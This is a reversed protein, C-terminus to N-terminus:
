GLVRQDAAHGGHQERGHVADEVGLSRAAHIRSSAELDPQLELRVLEDPARVHAPLRLSPRATGEGSRRARSRCRPRSPALPRAVLQVRQRHAVTLHVRALDLRARALDGRASPTARWMSSSTSRAANPPEASTPSPSIGFSRSARRQRVNRGRVHRRAVGDEQRQREAPRFHDAGLGDDEADVREVVGAVRVAPRLVELRELPERRQRRAGADFPPRQLM